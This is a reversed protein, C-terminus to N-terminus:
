SAADRVFPRTDDYAHVLIPSLTPADPESRERARHKEDQPPGNVVGEFPTEEHEQEESGDQPHPFGVVPRATWQGPDHPQDRDHKVNEPSGNVFVEAPREEYEQKEGNGHTRPFSPGRPAFAAVLAKPRMLGTGDWGVLHAERAAAAVAVIM